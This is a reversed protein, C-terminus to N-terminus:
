EKPNPIVGTEMIQYLFSRQEKLGSLLAANRAASIKVKVCQMEKVAYKQCSTLAGSAEISEVIAKAIEDSLESQTELLAENIRHQSTATHNDLGFLCPPAGYFWRCLVFYIEDSM